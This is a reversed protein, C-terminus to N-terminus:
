SYRQELILNLKMVLLNTAVMLVRFCFSSSKCFLLESILGDFKM